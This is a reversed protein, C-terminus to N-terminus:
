WPISRGTETYTVMEGKAGLTIVRCPELAGDEKPGALEAHNNLGTSRFGPNVLNVKIGEKAYLNSFVAGLMNVAAKSAKYIPEQFDHNAASPDLTWTISGLNSSM